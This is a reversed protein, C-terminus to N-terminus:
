TDSWTRVDEWRFVPGRPDHHERVPSAGGTGTFTARGAYTVGAEDYATHLEDVGLVSLYRDIYDPFTFGLLSSRRSSSTSASPPPLWKYEM